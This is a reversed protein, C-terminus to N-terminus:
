GQDLCIKPLEYGPCSPSAEEEELGLIARVLDQGGSKVINVPVQLANQVEERTVDDLFVEEGSRFMCVPLLLRGGLERGSLQRIVDQGTLLGAVTIQEGFFENRVAYVHVQKQPYLRTIKEAQKKLYPYALMGTAIAITEPRIEDQKQCIWSRDKLAKAVESDLLRLMGVGNELQPYNDYREEEPLARGALLYFEDSAHVFHNGWKEYLRQQWREIVKLAAAASEADFPKLPYLGERFKSLGVPVVSVSEMVPLYNALDRITRELEQGDNIGRCLVIQGNMPVQAEFLTDIKKLAEGAFRNHLMKCRLGPNTTHVSINIPALKFRIIREIDHDKMNTLTIYNGQLFSLRSDDDKFYLTERMGPPMQDIFCFICRNKCSKYDSMLGNEFTIGLDEYGHEIELEWLEGDAKEVLMVMSESGIYYEYDFIDEIENGNIALLFDGAELELEEAISGPDIAQIKHKKKEM